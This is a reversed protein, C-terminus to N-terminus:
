FAVISIFYFYAENSHMVCMLNIVQLWLQYIIKKNDKAWLSGKGRLKLELETCNQLLLLRKLDICSKQLLLYKGKKEDLHKRQHM